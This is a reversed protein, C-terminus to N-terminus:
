LPSRVVFATPDNEDLGVVGDDHLSLARNPYNISELIFASGDSTPSTCFTADREFLESGGRRDWRGPQELRLIFNRHRLFYGPYNVSELSVCGDRGLGKRVVFRSDARELASSGSGIRDIRGVFDRHRLRLEARGAPSLGVTAGIDLDVM